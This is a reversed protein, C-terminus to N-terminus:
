KLTLTKVEKVIYDKAIGSVIKNTLKNPHPDQENAILKKSDYRKFHEALDICPINLKKFINLMKSYQQLDNISLLYPWAMILLKAHYLDTVVFDLIRIKESHENLIEDNDYADSLMRTYNLNVEELPYIFRYYLQKFLESFKILNNVTKNPKKKRYRKELPISDEIDNFVYNLIVLGTETGPRHNKLLFSIEDETSAGNKSMNVIHYQKLENRLINSYREEPDKLGHGYTYSDGIVIINIKDKSLPLESDRFQWKDNKYYKKSFNNGLMSFAYSRVYFFRFYTELLLLSAIIAWITLLFLSKKENKHKLIYRFCLFSLLVFVFLIFLYRGM